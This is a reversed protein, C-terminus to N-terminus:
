RGRRRGAIILLPAVVLVIVAAVVVLLFATGDFGTAALTQTHAPIDPPLTPVFPTPSPACSVYTTCDQASM